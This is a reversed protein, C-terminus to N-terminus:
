NLLVIVDLDDDLASFPDCDDDLAQRVQLFKAKGFLKHKDIFDLKKTQFNLEETLVNAIWKSVIQFTQIEQLSTYTSYYTPMDIDPMDTSNKSLTFYDFLSYNVQFQNKVFDYKLVENLQYPIIV